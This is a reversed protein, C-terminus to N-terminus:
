KRQTFKLELGFVKPPNLYLQEESLNEVLALSNFFLYSQELSRVKFTIGKIRNYDDPSFHIRLSDNLFCNGNEDIMIPHLLDQWAQLSSHSGYGIRIESIYEIGAGERSCSNLWDRLIVRRERDTVEYLAAFVNGNSLEPNRIYIFEPHVERRINRAELVRDCVSISDAAQFNMGYFIARFESSYYGRGPYPGCPELVMNGAYVGAYRRVGYTVPTYYVPLGLTHTLFRYVSDHTITDQVHISLTHVGNILSGPIVTSTAQPNLFLYGGLFFYAIHWIIGM